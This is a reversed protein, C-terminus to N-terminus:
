YGEPLPAGNVREYLKEAIDEVQQRDVEDPPGFTTVEYVLFGDAFYVSYRADPDVDDGIQDIAEQTAIAQVGKANPVGAPEFETIEYACTEPCPRVGIDHAVDLAAEAGDDSAFAYVATFVHPSTRPIHEGGPESPFFRTNFVASVFGAEEIANFEDDYVPPGDWSAELEELGTATVPTEVPDPESGPAEASGVVRQELTLAGQAEDGGCAVLALSVVLAAAIRVVKM